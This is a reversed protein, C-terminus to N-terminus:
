GDEDDLFVDLLTGDEKVTFSARIQDEEDISDLYIDYGWLFALHKLVEITEEGDLPRRGVMKHHLKMSRDGWRDVNVVQIDPIMYGINYQASLVQRVHKYSIDDHIGSITRKPDKEM